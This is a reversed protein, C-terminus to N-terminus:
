QGTLVRRLANDQEIDSESLNKTVKSLQEAQQMQQAQAAQQQEAAMLEEVEENSRVIRSATGTIDAYEDAAEMFNFKKIVNPDFQSANSIFQLYRDISSLGISKQAQAMISVYEIKIDQGELEEPPDTLKGQEAMFEFMMEVAPDLLDKNLNELVPGLALLKEEQRAAIETATFERRDSSALMLFLDEFYARKIRTRVQEQKSEMANVDYQVNIAPRYSANQTEDVYTIDDPLLSSRQNILSTPGVMPPSIKKDLALLTKREGEQLQLNDGLCIFGPCDTGYIDEGTRSWRPALVPFRNYGSERLIKDEHTSSNDNNNGRFGIEFYFSKYKKFRSFVKKSDYEDNPMVLHGVLVSNEHNGSEFQEKVRTSINRWDIDDKGKDKGFKDVVQRVTMLYERYYKDIKYKSNVGLYYSGIPQTSFRAVNEFDEEVFMAGTAFSGVDGYLTLVQDYFNSKNFGQRVIQTNEDLWRKVSPLKSLEKDEVGLNFWSRSPPTVGAMMGARMVNKSFVATSDLISENRTGVQNLDTYLFRTRSPDIVEAVDRWLSDHATRENKMDQAIRNLYQRKDTAEKLNYYKYM